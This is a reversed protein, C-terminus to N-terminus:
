PAVDRGFVDCWCADVGGGGVCSFQMNKQTRVYYIDKVRTITKTETCVKFIIGRGAAMAFWCKLISLGGMNVGGVQGTGKDPNIRRTREM